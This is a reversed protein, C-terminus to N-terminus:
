SVGARHLGSTITRRTEAPMLGASLAARELAEIATSEDLEGDAIMEGAKRAAWWVM